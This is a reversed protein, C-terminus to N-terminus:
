QEWQRLVKAITPHIPTRRLVGDAQLPWVLGNFSQAMHAERDPKPKGAQRWRHQWAQLRKFNAENM